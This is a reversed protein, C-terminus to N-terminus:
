EQSMEGSLMIQGHLGSGQCTLVAASWDEGQARLDEGLGVGPASAVKAKAVDRLLSAVEASEVKKELIEERCSERMMAESIYSQILRPFMKELTDPRDFCEVGILRGDIVVAIGSSDRPYSFEHWNTSKGRFKRYVEEASCTASPTQGSDSFCAVEEWVGAQDVPYAERLDQRAGEGAAARSGSVHRLKMYRLNAHSYLDSLGFAGMPQRSWRGAEVCGVPITIKSKKNVLITTHVTRNQKAGMLIEGEVLLVPSKLRNIVKLETVSGEPSVEEVSFHKGDEAKLARELTLYDLAPPMQHRLAFVQMNGQQCSEGVQLGSWYEEWATNTM